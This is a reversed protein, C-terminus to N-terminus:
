WETYDGLSVLKPNGNLNVFNGIMSNTLNVNEPLTNNQILSGPWKSDGVTCHSGISVNPGITCNNIITNAATPALQCNGVQASPDILGENKLFDFHRSGSAVIRSKNGCVLWENITGIIARLQDKIDDGFDGIIFGIHEIKESIVKPIDGVLWQVIPKGAPVLPKPTTLTRPRPHKGNDAMPIILNM